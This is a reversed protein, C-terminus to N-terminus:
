LEVPALKNFTGFFRSRNQEETMEQWRTKYDQEWFLEDSTPKLTSATAVITAMYHWLEEVDTALYLKGGPKLKREILQVFAPTVVRRKQQRPKPWPDPHFIFIRDVTDDAFMDELGIQGNGDVALVNTLEAQAISAQAQQVLRNRIEFGVLSHEPHQKGYHVLFSGTGFGIEVALKGNFSPFISPWDARDFRQRCSFPNLLTRVRM